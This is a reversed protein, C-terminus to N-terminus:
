DIEYSIRDGSLVAYAIRARQSGEGEIRYSGGENVLNMKSRTRWWAAVERPLPIWTKGQSRLECLHLLLESYVSRAKQSIIYDPHVIFNMLGDKARILSIQERWLCTSYDNLVHFLSYDQTMTVPLEVM